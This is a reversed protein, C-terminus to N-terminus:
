CTPMWSTTSPGRCTRAYRVRWVASGSCRGHKNIDYVARIAKPTLTRATLSGAAVRATRDATIGAGTSTLVLELADGVPASFQVADDPVGRYGSRVRGSDGSGAHEHVTSGSGFAARLFTDNGEGISTPSNAKRHDGSGEAGEALAERQEKRIEQLRRAAAVLMPWPIVGRERSTRSVPRMEREAGVTELTTRSATSRVRLHECRAEIGMFERIEARSRQSIDGGGSVRISALRM